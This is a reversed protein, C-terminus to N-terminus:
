ITRNVLGLISSDHLLQLFQILLELSGHNAGPAAEPKFDVRESHWDYTHRAVGSGAELVLLRHEAAMMLKALARGCNDVFTPRLVHQHLTETVRFVSGTDDLRLYDEVDRLALDADPGLWGMRAAFQVATYGGTHGLPDDLSLMDEEWMPRVPASRKRALFSEMMGDENAENGENAEDVPKGAGATPAAKAALAAKAAPSQDDAGGDAGAHQPVYDDPWFGAATFEAGTHHDRNMEGKTNFSWTAKGGPEEPPLEWHEDSVGHPKGGLHQEWYERSAKAGADFSLAISAEGPKPVRTLDPGEFNGPIRAEHKKGLKPPLLIAAAGPGGRSIADLLWQNAGHEIFQKLTVDRIWKNQIDNGGVASFAKECENSGTQEAAFCAEPQAEAQLQMLLVTMHMLHRGHRRSQHALANAEVTLGPTACVCLLQRALFDSVFGCHHVKTHPTEQDNVFVSVIKRCMTAWAVLGKTSYTPQLKELLEIVDKSCRYVAGAVDM